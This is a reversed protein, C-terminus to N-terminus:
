KNAIILLSLIIIFATLAMTLIFRKRYKRHEQLEQEAKQLLSDIREEYHLKMKQQQQMIGEIQKECKQRYEAKLGQVLFAFDLYMDEEKTSITVLGSDKLWTNYFDFNKGYSNDIIKVPMGLLLRLIAAHLRTSCVEDFASAFEVGAKIQRPFFENVFFADTEDAKHTHQYQRADIGAKQLLPWDSITYQPIPTSLRINEKLEKDERRLFLSGGTTKAMSAQLEEQNICFAMDPLTLIEGRFAKQRLIDASHNDRACITLHHHRNMKRVDEAFLDDSEYFITQPLIIIPNDPYSQIVNLRFDQHTRWLDGINGGGHMLIVVEKPLPRFDFTDKSHRGVCKGPLEKLFEETGLWILTDGINSHYPLDLYIYDTKILPSLTERILNGLATCTNDTASRM